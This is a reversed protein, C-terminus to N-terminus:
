LSVWINHISQSAINIEGLKSNLPKDRYKRIFTFVLHSFKNFPIKRIFENSVVFRNQNNGRIRILPVLQDTGKLIGGLVIEDTGFDSKNWNLVIKFDDRDTSGTANIEGTIDSPMRMDFSSKMGERNTLHIPIMKNYPFNLSSPFLTSKTNIVYKTGILTDRAIFNDLYRLRYPILEAVKHNFKVEGLEITKFGIIKGESNLVPRSSDFFIAVGYGKYTTINNFTNKIGSYSIISKNSSLEEIVGTSDYGTLLLSGPQDNIIEIESETEQDSVLEIPSPEECGILVLILIIHLIFLKM